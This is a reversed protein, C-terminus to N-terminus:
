MSKRMAERLKESFLVGGGNQHHMLLFSLSERKCIDIKYIKIGKLVSGVNM